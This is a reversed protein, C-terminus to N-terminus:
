GSSPRTWLKGGEVVLFPVYLWVWTLEHIVVKRVREPRNSALFGAYAFQRALNELRLDVQFQRFTTMWFVQLYPLSGSPSPLPWILLRQFHVFPTSKCRIRLSRM